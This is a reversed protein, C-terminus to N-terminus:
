EGVRMLRAPPLAESTIRVLAIRGKFWHIQNQRVGISTRGARLPPFAVPGSAERVGNVYHAMVAGDYVLAAVHWQGAPHVVERDILTLADRTGDRLFTDLCWSGGSRMRTELLARRGSGGGEEVHFFRQEAPGDPAPEFLVEITFSRMGAIPNVDLVLGDARGDFEIAPGVPTQVVAPSGLVTVAHGAISTLSDVRWEIIRPEGAGPTGGEFGAPYALLIVVVRTIAPWM